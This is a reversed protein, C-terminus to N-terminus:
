GPLPLWFPNLLHSIIYGRTQSELGLDYTSISFVFLLMNVNVTLIIKLISITVLVIINVIITHLVSTKNM